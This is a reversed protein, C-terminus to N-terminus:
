YAKLNVNHSTPGANQQSSRKVDPPWDTANNFKTETLAHGKAIAKGIGTKNM